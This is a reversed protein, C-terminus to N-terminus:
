RGVKWTGVVVRYEPAGFMCFLTIYAIVYETGLLIERKLQMKHLGGPDAPKVTMDGGVWHSATETRGLILDLLLPRFSYIGWEAVAYAHAIKALMQCFVHNNFTAVRIGPGGDVVRKRVEDNPTGIWSEGVLRNHPKDGTLIGPPPLTIRPIVLPFESALVKREEIRGDRHQMVMTLETPRDEPRRTPLDLRIRTPGLIMHQCTQEVAGTIRGCKKCSSRPLIQNGGLGFPIIHEKGLNRKTAEKVTGDSCYICAWVAKYVHWETQNAM